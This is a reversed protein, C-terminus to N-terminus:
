RIRDARRARAPVFIQPAYHSFFFEVDDSAAAHDNVLEVARRPDDAGVFFDQQACMGRAGRHFTRLDAAENQVVESPASDEPQFGADEALHAVVAVALEQAVPHVSEADAMVQGEVPCRTRERRDEDVGRAIACDIHRPARGALESRGLDAITMASEDAAGLPKVGPVAAPASHTSMISCVTLAGLVARAAVSRIKM